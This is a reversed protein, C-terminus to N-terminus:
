IRPKTGAVDSIVKDTMGRTGNLFCSIFLDAASDLAKPDTFPSQQPHNPWAVVLTGDDLLRKEFCYRRENWKVAM